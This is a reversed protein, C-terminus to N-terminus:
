TTTSRAPRTTCCRRASSPRERGAGAHHHPGRRGERGRALGGGRPQQPGDACRRRRRPGHPRAGRAGGRDILGGLGRERTTPPGPPPDGCPGGRHLAAPGHRPHPVSAALHSRLVPKGDHRRDAHHPREGRPAPLRGAPGQQLPPDRRCLPDNEPGTSRAARARAEEIVGRIEKVGSLVASFTAFHSKTEGAIIRALTTKGSGPPGWFIMSFVRDEEIAKRLLGGKELIHSQGM